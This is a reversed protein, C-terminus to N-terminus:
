HEGEYVVKEERLVRVSSSRQVIGHTVRCGAIKKYSGKIQIEFLQLVTAEGTVKIDYTCPLLSIVRDRVDDIVRYIIDSTYIPVHNQTASARVARPVGVSFAVIMASASIFLHVCFFGSVPTGDAAKAMMVDSDAVNGVGTSVVRVGALHNGIDKVAGVLAEVSGSVDGKVVIRLYKRKVEQVSNDEALMTPARNGRRAKYAIEREKEEREKDAQRAANIAGVDSLASELDRKRERNACAKKIDVESGALVEEGAAPLSKWGTVLVPTGPAASTIPQLSPSLLRRTSCSSTGALLPTGPCLTGRTM